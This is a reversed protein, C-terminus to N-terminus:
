PTQHYWIHGDTQFNPLLESVAQKVSQWNADHGAIIGGKKLKPLWATIDAKVSDYDHSADIFILDFEPRKFLKSATVSDSQIVTIPYDATNRMFRDYLDFPAPANDDGKFTDVCTHHSNLRHQKLIHQICVTSRGAYVGIEIISSLNPHSLILREMAKADSEDWWGPVNQWIKM